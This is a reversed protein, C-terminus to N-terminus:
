RMWSKIMIVGPTSVPSCYKLQLDATLLPAQENLVLIHHTKACLGITKDLLSAMIGGHARPVTDHTNIMKSFFKDSLDDKEYWTIFLVLKYLSSPNLYSQVFPFNTFFDASEQSVPLSKILDQYNHNYM